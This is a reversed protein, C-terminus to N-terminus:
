INLIRDSKGLNHEDCLIQLNSIDDTGDKSLPIIHDIHLKVGDSAGKGCFACKRGYKEFVLTSTKASIAKRIYKPRFESLYELESIKGSEFAVVRDRVNSLKGFVHTYVRSTYQESNQKLYADLQKATPDNGLQMWAKKYIDLMEKLDRKRNVSSKLGAAKMAKSWGGFAKSISGAGIPRNIWKDFDGMTFNKYNNLVFYSKLTDTMESKSIKVVRSKQIKFAFKVTDM